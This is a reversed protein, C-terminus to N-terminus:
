AHNIYISGFETDELLHWYTQTDVVPAIPVIEFSGDENQSLVKAKYGAAVREVGESAAFPRLVHYPNLGFVSM